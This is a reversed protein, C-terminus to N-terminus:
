QPAPGAFHGAPEAELIGDRSSIKDNGTFSSTKGLEGFYQPNHTFSDYNDIMLLMTGAQREATEHAHTNVSKNWDQERRTRHSKMM